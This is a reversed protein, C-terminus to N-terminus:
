YRGSRYAYTDASCRRTYQRATCSASGHSRLQSVAIASDNVSVATEKLRVEGSETIAFIGATEGIEGLAQGDSTAATERAILIVLGRM